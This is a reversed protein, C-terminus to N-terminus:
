TNDKLIKFCLCESKEINTKCTKDKLKCRYYGPEEIFPPNPVWKSYPCEKPEIVDVYEKM